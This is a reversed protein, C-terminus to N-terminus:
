GFGHRTHWDAVADIAGRDFANDDDFPCDSLVEIEDPAMRGSLLEGAAWAYGRQRKAEDRRKLWAQLWKIM